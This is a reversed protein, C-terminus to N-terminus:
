GPMDASKPRHMWQICLGIVATVSWMVLWGLWTDPLWSVGPVDFRVALGTGCGLWLATGLLATMLATAFGPTLVGLTLGLLAGVVAASIVGAVTRDYSRRALRIQGAREPDISVVM